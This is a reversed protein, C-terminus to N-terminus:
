THNLISRTSQITEKYKQYEKEKEVNNFPATGKGQQEAQFRAYFDSADQIAANSHKMVETMLKTFEQYDNEISQNNYPRQKEGLYEKTFRDAFDMSYKQFTPNDKIDNNVHESIDAKVVPNFFLVGLLLVNVLRFMIM